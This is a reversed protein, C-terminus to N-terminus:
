RWWRALGLRVLYGGADQGNVTVRALMRGYREVGQREVEVPGRALFARL